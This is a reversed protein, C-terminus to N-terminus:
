DYTNQMRDMFAAGSSSSALRSNGDKTTIVTEAAKSETNNLILAQRQVATRFARTQTLEEFKLVNVQTQGGSGTEYLELLGPLVDVMLEHHRGLHGWRRCRNCTSRLEKPLYNDLMIDDWAIQYLALMGKRDKLRLRELGIKKRRFREISAGFRRIQQQNKWDINEVNINLDPKNQQNMRNSAFRSRYRGRGRNGRASRAGRARYNNNYWVNRNGYSGRAGSGRGRRGTGYSTNRYTGTQNGYSTNTSTELGFESASIANVARTGIKTIENTTLKSRESEQMYREIGELVLQMEDLTKPIQCSMITKAIFLDYMRKNSREIANILLDVKEFEKLSSKEIKEPLIGEVISEMEAIIRKYGTMISGAKLNSPFSYKFCQDYKIDRLKELPYHLDFWKLFQEKTKISKLDEDTLRKAADKLINVRLIRYIVGNEDFGKKKASSDFWDVFKRRFELIREDIESTAGEFKYPCEKIDELDKKLKHIVLQIRAKQLEDRSLEVGTQNYISKIEAKEQTTVQIDIDNKEESQTTTQASDQTTDQPSIEQAGKENGNSKNFHTEILKQANRKQESSLNQLIDLIQQFKEEDQETGNTNTDTNLKPKKSPPPAAAPDTNDLNQTETRLTEIKRRIKNLSKRKNRKANRKTKIQRKLQEDQPNGVSRALLQELQGEIDKIQGEIGDRKQKEIEIKQEVEKSQQMLDIVDQDLDIDQEELDSEPEIGDRKAM